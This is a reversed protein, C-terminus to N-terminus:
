NSFSETERLTRLVVKPWADLPYSMLLAIAMEVTCDLERKLVDFAFSADEIIQQYQKVRISEHLKDWVIRMEEDLFRMNKQKDKNDPVHYYGSGPKFFSQYYDSVRDRKMAIIEDKAKELAIARWLIFYDHLLNVKEIKNRTRYVQYIANQLQQDSVPSSVYDSFLINKLHQQEHAFVLYDDNEEGIVTYLIPGYKTMSRNAFGSFRARKNISGDHHMIRNVVKKKVVIDVAMGTVNVRVIDDDKIDYDILINVIKRNNDVENVLQLARKQYEEYADLIALIQMWLSKTFGYRSAFMEVWKILEDKPYAPQVQLIREIYTQCLAVAMKQVLVKRKFEPLEKKRETRPLHSIRFLEEQSNFEDNEDFGDDEIFPPYFLSFNDLEQLLLEELQPLEISFEQELQSFELELRKKESLKRNPKEYRARLVDAIKNHFTKSRIHRLLRLEDSDEPSSDAVLELEQELTIEM